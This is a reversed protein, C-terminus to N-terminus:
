KSAELMMTETPHLLMDLHCCGLQAPIVDPLVERHLQSLIALNQERSYRFQGLDLVEHFV